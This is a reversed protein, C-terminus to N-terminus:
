EILTRLLAQVCRRTTDAIPKGGTGLVKAAVTGGTETHTSAWVPVGTETEVMHADLSVIPMMVGTSRVVESQTVTGLIVAQVSLAKGLTVIEETSPAPAARARTSPLRELAARVEGPEVVEVAGSALLETIMVRTARVAAGRDGTVNDFPLVAVREVYSFDFATNTFRTTPLGSRCAALAALVGCLLCALRTKATM